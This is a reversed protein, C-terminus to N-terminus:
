SINTALSDPIASSEGDVETVLRCGFVESGDTGMSSSCKQLSIKYISILLELYNKIFIFIFIYIYIYIYLCYSIRPWSLFGFDAAFIYWLVYRKMEPRLMAAMQAINDTSKLSGVFASKTHMLSGWCSNCQSELNSFHQMNSYTMVLRLINMFWTDSVFSATLLSPQHHFNLWQTLMESCLLLFYLITTKCNTTWTKFHSRPSQTDCM